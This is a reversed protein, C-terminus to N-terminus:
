LPKAHLRQPDLKYHICEPLLNRINCLLKSTAESNTLKIVFQKKERHHLIVNIGHEGYFRKLAEVLILQDDFTFSNTCFKGHVINKFEKNSYFSGDDAAWIALSLMDLDEIVSEHVKKKGDVYYKSYFGTLTPHVITYTAFSGSSYSNIGCINVPGPDSTKYVPRSFPDLLKKKWILYQKQKTCHKIMLKANKGRKPICLGGDGLISGLVVSKQKDSFDLSRLEHFVTKCSKPRDLKYKNFWARVTGYPKGLEVAVKGMSGLEMMLKELIKKDPIKNKMIFEKRRITGIKYM